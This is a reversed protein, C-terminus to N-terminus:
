ELLKDEIKSELAALVGQLKSSEKLSNPRANFKLLEVALETCINKASYDTSHPYYGSVIKAIEILTTKPSEEYCKNALEKLQLLAQQHIKDQLM